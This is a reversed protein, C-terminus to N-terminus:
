NKATSVVEVFAHGGSLVEVIRGVRVHRLQVNDTTNSGPLSGAVVTAVVSSGDPAILTFDGGGGVNVTAGGGWGLLTGTATFALARTGGTSLATRHLTVGTTNVPQAAVGLGVTNDDVVWAEKVLDGATLGPANFNFIGKLYGEATSAGNAGSANNVEARSVGVFALGASDSAPAVYGSANVAVMAGAYIHAGAAAPLAFIVGQKRETMRDKTLTAM